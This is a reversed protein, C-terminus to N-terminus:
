NANNYFIRDKEKDRYVRTKKLVAPQGALLSKEPIDYTKNLLSNAAVICNSPLVTNKFVLAKTAIWCDNGISIAGYDKKQIGENKSTSILQHFDTDMILSDWGIEVGNGFNINYYCALKLAANIRFQNGITLNATKGISIFSSNGILANGKFIIRGGHNEFTIGDNPYLSCIFKGLIIMGFKIQNTDIQISGKCELLKPKYLLIPLHIAQKIPLYHFNFWISSPLSHLIWKNNLWNKYIKKLINLM